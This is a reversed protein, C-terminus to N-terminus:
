LPVESLKKIKLAIQHKKEMSLCKTFVPSDSIMQLQQLSLIVEGRKEYCSSVSMLGDTVADLDPCRWKSTKEYTKPGLKPNVAHYAMTGYRGTCTGSPATSHNSAMEAAILPSCVALTTILGSSFGVIFDTSYGLGSVLYSVSTQTAEKSNLWLVQGSGLETKSFEKECSGQILHDKQITKYSTCSLLFALLIYKM